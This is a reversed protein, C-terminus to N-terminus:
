AASQTNKAALLMLRTTTLDNLLASKGLTRSVMGTKEETDILPYIWM